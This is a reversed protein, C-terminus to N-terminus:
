WRLEMGYLPIVKEGMCAFCVFAKLEYACIPVFIAVGGAISPPAENDFVQISEEAKEQCHGESIKQGLCSCICCIKSVGHM